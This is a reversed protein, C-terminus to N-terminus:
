LGGERRTTDEAGGSTQRYESDLAGKCTFTLSAHVLAVTVPLLSPSLFHEHVEGGCDRAPERRLTLLGTRQLVQREGEVVGEKVRVEKAVGAATVTM